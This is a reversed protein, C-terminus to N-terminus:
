VNEPEYGLEILKGEIMQRVTPNSGGSPLKLSEVIGQLQTANLRHSNLIYTEGTPIGTDEVVQNDKVDNMALYETVSEAERGLPSKEPVLLGEM